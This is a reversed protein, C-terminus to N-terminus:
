LKEFERMRGSLYIGRGYYNMKYDSKIASLELSAKVTDGMSLKPSYYYLSLKTGKKLNNSELVKADACYFEDSKYTIETVTLVCESKVKDFSAYKDM